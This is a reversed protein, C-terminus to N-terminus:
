HQQRRGPALIGLLVAAGVAAGALWLEPPLARVARRLLKWVEQAERKRVHLRM